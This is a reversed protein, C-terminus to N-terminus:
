VERSFVFSLTYTCLYVDSVFSVLERHASLITNLQEHYPLKKAATLTQHSTSSQAKEQTIPAKESM